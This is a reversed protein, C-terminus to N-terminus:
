TAAKTRKLSRLLDLLYFSLFPSGTLHIGYCCSLTNIVAFQALRNNLLAFRGNSALLLCIFVMIKLRQQCGTAQDNSTEGRFHQCINVIKIVFFSPEGVFLGRVKGSSEIGLLLVSLNLSVVRQNAVTQAL